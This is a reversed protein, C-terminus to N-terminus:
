ALVILPSQGRKYKYLSVSANGNLCNIKRTSGHGIPGKQQPPPVPTRLLGYAVASRAAEAITPESMPPLHHSDTYRRLVPYGDNGTDASADSEPTIAAPFYAVNVARTSAWLAPLHAHPGNVPIGPLPTALEDYQSLKSLPFRPSRAGIGTIYSIAQPNAGLQPHPTM